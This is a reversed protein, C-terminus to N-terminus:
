LQKLACLKNGSPDRLYALYRNMGEFERVGPADEISVGGFDRGIKHWKDGLAENEINFGVTSGNGVTAQEGDIPESICFTMGDLFYFYRTQGTLNPVMLGPKAGLVGLVNDYFVKSKEIDNAGVMIHSFM